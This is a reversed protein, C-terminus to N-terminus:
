IGAVFLQSLPVNVVTNLWREKKNCKKNMRFSASHTQSAVSDYYMYNLASGWSMAKIATYTELIGIYVETDIPGECIHLNDKGHVSICWWVM